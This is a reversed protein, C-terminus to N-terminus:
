TSTSELHRTGKAEVVRRGRRLRRARSGGDRGVLRLSTPRAGQQRADAHEDGERDREDGDGAPMEGLARAAGHEGVGLHQPPRPQRAEGRADGHPHREPTAPM